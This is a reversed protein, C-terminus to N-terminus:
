QAGDARAEQQSVLMAMRQVLALETKLAANSGVAALTAAAIRLPQASVLLLHTADYTTFLSELQQRAEDPLQAIDRRDMVPTVAFAAALQQADFDALQEGEILTTGQLQSHETVDAMFRRVDGLGAQSLARLVDDRRSSAFARIAENVVLALIAAALAMAGIQV